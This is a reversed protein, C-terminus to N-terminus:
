ERTKIDMEEIAQEFESLNGVHRELSRKNIGLEFAVDQLAAHFSQKGDMLAQIMRLRKQKEPQYNRAKTDNRKQITKLLAVEDEVVTAVMDSYGNILGIIPMPDFGLDILMKCLFVCKIGSVTYRSRNMWNKLSKKESTRLKKFDECGIERIAISEKLAESGHDVMRDLRVVMKQRTEEDIDVRFM